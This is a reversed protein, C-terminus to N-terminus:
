EFGLRLGSREASFFSRYQLSGLGLSPPHPDNREEFVSSQVTNASNNVFSSSTVSFESSESVYAVGGAGYQLLTLPSTPYNPSIIRRVPSSPPVIARELLSCVVTICKAGKRSCPETQIQLRRSQLGFNVYVQAFMLAPRTRFLLRFMHLLAKTHLLRGM